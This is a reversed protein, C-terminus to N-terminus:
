AAKVEVLANRRPIPKRKMHELWHPRLVESRFPQWVEDWFRRMTPADRMVSPDSCDLRAYWEGDRYLERVLDETTGSHATADDLTDWLERAQTKDLWNHRRDELLERRLAQITADRDAVRHPQRAAKEMFYGYDLGYLFAHLSREGRGYSPWSNSFSGYGGEVMFHGAREDIMIFHYEPCCRIEGDELGHLWREGARVEYARPGQVESCAVQLGLRIASM